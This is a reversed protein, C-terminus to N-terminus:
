IRFQLVNIKKLIDKRYKPVIEASDKYSSAGISTNQKNNPTFRLKIM